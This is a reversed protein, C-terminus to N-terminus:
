AGLNQSDAASKVSDIHQAATIFPDPANEKNKNAPLPRINTKPTQSAESAPATEIALAQPPPLTDNAPIKEDALIPAATNCENGKKSSFFPAIYHSFVYTASALAGSYLFEVQIFNSLSSKLRTKGDIPTFLNNDLIEQAKTDGSAARQQFKNMVAQTGEGAQREVNEIFAAGRPGSNKVKNISWEAMNDTAHEFGKYLPDKRGFRYGIRNIVNDRAAIGFHFAYLPFIGMMRGFIVSRWTQEPMNDLSQYYAEQNKKQEDTQDKPGFWQDLKRVISAKHDELWKIPAMMAYGGGSFLVISALAKAKSASSYHRIGAKMVREFNKESMEGFEAALSAENKVYNYIDKRKGHQHFLQQYGEQAVGPDRMIDPHREAFHDRLKDFQKLQESGKAADGYQFPWKQLLFNTVRNLPVQWERFIGKDFLWLAMPANGAIWGVGWWTGIDFLRGGRTPTPCNAPDQKQATDNAETKKDKEQEM